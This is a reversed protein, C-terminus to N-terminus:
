EDDDREVELEVLQQELEQEKRQARLEILKQDAGVLKGYERLATSFDALKVDFENRQTHEVEVLAEIQQTRPLLDGVLKAFKAPEQEALIALCKKGSKRWQALLDELFQESIKNRAGIKRGPGFKNGVTFQGRAGRGPDRNPQDTMIVLEGTASLAPADRAM